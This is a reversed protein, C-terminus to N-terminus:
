EAISEALMPIGVGAQESIAEYQPRMTIAESINQALAEMTKANVMAHNMMTEDRREDSRIQTGEKSAENMLMVVQEFQQVNTMYDYHVYDKESRITISSYHFISGLLSTTHTVSKLDRLPIAQQSINFVGDQSKITINNASIYTNKYTLYTVLVDRGAAILFALVVFFSIKKIILLILVQALFMGLIRFGMKVFIYWHKQISITDENAYSIVNDLVKSM